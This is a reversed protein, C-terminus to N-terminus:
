SCTSVSCAALRAIKPSGTSPLTCLFFFYFTILHIHNCVRALVTCQCDVPLVLACMLTSALTPTAVAVEEEEEGAGHEAAENLDGEIAGDLAQEDLEEATAEAAASEISESDPM